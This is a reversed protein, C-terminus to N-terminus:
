ELAQWRGAVRELLPTEIAFAFPTGPALESRIAAGATGQAMCCALAVPSPGVNKMLRLAAGISAGSSVVDDVLLVRANALWPVVRPDIWLRKRAGPSTISALPESLADDYWFKRSTGLAVYRTHGLRRALGEAVPLGLTPLGVVIDAEVGLADLRDVVADLLADLVAFSAQTVILSAIGRGPTGPLERIPQRLGRGGPLATLWTGDGQDGPSFPPELLAQWVETSAM